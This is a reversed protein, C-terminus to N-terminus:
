LQAQGLNTEILITDEDFQAAHWTNPAFHFVSGASFRRAGEATELTGGGSIVQVFQEFGHSHRDARVGGKIAVQVLSAGEGDILRKTVSPSVVREDQDDWHQLIPM